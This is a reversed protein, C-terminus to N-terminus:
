STRRCRPARSSRPSGATRVSTSAGSPRSRDGAARSRRAGGEAGRLRRVAAAAGAGDAAPRPRRAPRRHRGAGGRLLAQRGLADPRPPLPPQAEQRARRVGDAGRPLCAAEGERLSCLGASLVSRCCRSSATPSTSATPRKAPQRTWRRARGCTPPSTPSPSGPSGAARIARIPRGARRVGRRRPRARGAPRHHGAAARAPGHPRRPDAAQGSRSRGRRGAPLRDPHRPRPHRHALRRAPRGRPRGGGAGQRAQPWLAARCQRRGPGAGSRRGEPRPGRARPDAPEGELPPRGARRAGRAAGQARRRPHPPREPRAAQDAAGRGRGDPLTEFRVLLRDGLGPAGAAKEGRDPALRALPAADDANAPRVFLDGDADREIVDAVGVPPYGGARRDAGRGRGGRAQREPQPRRAMRKSLARVPGRAVAEAMVVTTM